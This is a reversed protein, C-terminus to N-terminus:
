RFSENVHGGDSLGRHLRLDMGRRPLALVPEPV